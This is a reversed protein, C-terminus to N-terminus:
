ARVLAHGRGLSAWLAILLVMTTGVAVAAVFIANEGLLTKGFQATLLDSAKALGLLVALITTGILVHRIGFQLAPLAESSCAEPRSWHPSGEVPLVALVFGCRRLVFCLTALLTTEIVILDQWGLQPELQQATRMLMGYFKLIVWILLLLAPVR